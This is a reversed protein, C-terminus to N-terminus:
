GSFAKKRDALFQMLLQVCDAKDCVLKYSGSDKIVSYINAHTVPQKCFKCKVKNNDFDDLLGIKALLRSLDNTHIADINKYEKPM